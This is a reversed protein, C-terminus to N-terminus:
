MLALCEGDEKAPVGANDDGDENLYSVVERFATNLWKTGIGSDIHVQTTVDGDRITVRGAPVFNKLNEKQSCVSVLLFWKDLFQQMTQVPDKGIQLRVGHCYIGNKVSVLILRSM